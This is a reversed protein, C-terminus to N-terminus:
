PILQMQALGAGDLCISRFFEEENTSNNNYLIFIMLSM